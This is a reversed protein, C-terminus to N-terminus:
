GGGLYEMSLRDAVAESIRKAVEAQLVQAVDQGGAINVFINSLEGVTGSVHVKGKPSSRSIAQLQRTDAGNGFAVVHLELDEGFTSKTSSNIHSFTAAASDADNTGGDSMFIVVPLHTSPTREVLGQACQAAPSFCTGGGNYGLSKPANTIETLEVTCRASGNFQVVSVLDSGFQSIGRKVIYDNYAQVVGSWKYRMSSSEDLVFVIHRGYRSGGFINGATQKNPDVMPITVVERKATNEPHSLLQKSLEEETDKTAKPSFSCFFLGIDRDILSKTVSSFTLNKPHLHHYNDANPMGSYATPFKTHAPADTMLVMFKVESNWDGPNKWECCRQIAGLQDEAIDGGGSPNSLITQTAQIALNEDATFHSGSSYSVEEFQNDKDDVDRYGMIAVALTFNIEPFQAQLKRAISRPGKITAEVSERACKTFPGMSGTQDVAFAIDISLDTPMQKKQFTKYIDKFLQRSLQDDSSLLADFFKHTERDISTAQALNSEVLQCLQDHRKQRADKLFSYLDARAVSGISPGVGFQGKIDAELLIMQYSGKKGQRATRGQIQIEESIEHSLFTQIVHVGGNQQVRDDKCFFDTGRGFVATSITIQGATAARSIVFAKDADEMDETLVSKLRGLKRYYDSKTFQDMRERNEFFVIVARKKKTAQVTQDTISHFYDSESKDVRIGEGAADFTFNSKGYVSPVFLFKTLGYKQLVGKEYDDMAELTGSVGLIRAPSINAYSFRGCSVHMAMFNNADQASLNGNEAEKMYAFVTRYGYTAEYSVGDMVKHGIQGRERNVFYPEEEGTKKDVIYSSGQGVFQAENLMATIEDDVLFEFGSLRTTLAKYSDSAQVDALRLRRGGNKHARWIEKLINSIDNDQVPSVVNYTQGYFEAGFFVDVEDVLLIEPAPTDSGQPHLVSSLQTPPMTAEVASPQRCPQSHAVIKNTKGPASDGSTATENTAGNISDHGFISSSTGFLNSLFSGSQLMNRNTKSALSGRLLEETLTRIDGKAATTDESYTTIKSYKIQETLNFIEFM